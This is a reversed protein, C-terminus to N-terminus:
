RITQQSSPTIVTNIPIPLVRDDLTKIKITTGCLADALPMRHTYVLDNGDRRFTPHPKEDVIFIMDAPSTGNGMDDGARRRCRLSGDSAGVDRNVPHFPSLHISPLLILLM